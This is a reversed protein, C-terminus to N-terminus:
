HWLFLQHISPCHVSISLYIFLYDLMASVGGSHDFCSSKCHVSVDFAMLSNSSMLIPVSCFINLVAGDCGSRSFSKFKAVFLFLM